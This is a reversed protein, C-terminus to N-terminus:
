SLVTILYVLADQETSLATTASELLITVATAKDLFNSDALVWLFRPILIKNFSLHSRALFNKPVPFEHYNVPTPVVKIKQPQSYM